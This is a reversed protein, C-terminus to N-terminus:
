DAGTYRRLDDIAYAVLEAAFTEAEAPLSGNQQYLGSLVPTAAAEVADLDFGAPLARLVEDTPLEARRMARDSRGLGPEVIGRM